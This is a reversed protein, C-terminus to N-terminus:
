VELYAMSVKNNSTTQLKSMCVGGWESKREKVRMMEMKEDGAYKM